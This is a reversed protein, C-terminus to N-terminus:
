TPTEEVPPEEAPPEEAPPQQVPPTTVGAVTLTYSGNGVNPDVSTTTLAGGGTEAFTRPFSSVGVVQPGAGIAFLAETLAPVLSVIRRAGAGQSQVHAVAALFALLAM